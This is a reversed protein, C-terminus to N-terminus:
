GEEESANDNDLAPEWRARECQNCQWKDSRVLELENFCVQCRPKYWAVEAATAHLAELATVRDCLREVLERLESYGGVLLRQHEDQTM